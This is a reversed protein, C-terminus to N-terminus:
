AAAWRADGDILRSTPDDNQTLALYADELSVQQPTLELLLIHHAYAIHAITQPKLGTVTLVDGDQAIASPPRDLIARLRSAQPSRVRVKGATGALMAAMPVDALLRGRGIVVLHDATLAMESMLHSSVLVTRGEAALRRLLERIWRIGGPDLGTVPEELVLVGPDGLLAGALGLRQAMGLSLGLSRRDAMDGLGVLGLVEDVRRDGIGHPAALARLHDRPTSWPPVPRADLLAGVQHPPAAHEAYSRGAIRVEGRTPRDLGVAIRMTTSKGAGNPGLFGTVLGPRVTVTLDDVATTRGYTKTLERIEIM